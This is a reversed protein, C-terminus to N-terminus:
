CRRTVSDTPDSRGNRGADPPESAEFRGCRERFPRDFRESFPWCAHNTADPANRFCLPPQCRHSHPALIAVRAISAFSDDMM